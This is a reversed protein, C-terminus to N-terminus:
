NPGMRGIVPKANYDEFNPVYNSYVNKELSSKKTRRSRKKARSKRGRSKRQSRRTRQSKRRHTRTTRRSKRRHTRATRRRRTRLAKRRRRRRSGGRQYPEVAPQGAIQDNFNFTFGATHSSNLVGSM